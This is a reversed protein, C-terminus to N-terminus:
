DVTGFAHVLHRVWTEFDVVEIWGGPQLNDYAQRMLKPWDSISGLSHGDSCGDMQPDALYYLVVWAELIFTISNRTISGTKRPMTLRSNSMRLYRCCGHANGMGSGTLPGESSAWYPQIVSLDTAIVDAELHMDAFDIAWKGTGCGVDLVRNVKRPLPARYLEGSFIMLYIHHQMDMREQEAEDNPM